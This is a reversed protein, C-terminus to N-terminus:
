PEKLAAYSQMLGSGAEYMEQKVYYIGLWTIVNMDVPWYRYSELHYHFAQTEDGAKNFLNALRALV